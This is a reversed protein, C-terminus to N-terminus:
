RIRKESALLAATAQRHEWAVAQSRRVFPESQRGDRMMAVWGQRAADWAVAGTKTVELSGLDAFPFDDSYVSQFSGNPRIVIVIEDPM